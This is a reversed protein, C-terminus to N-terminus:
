AARARQEAHRRMLSRYDVKGVKTLPLADIFHVERPCSWKILHERCHAVISQEAPVGPATTGALVVYAVVREIQQPDPVAIVCADAIAPHQRLTAEVQAPLRQVGLIQYNAEPARSPFFGDADLCGRDGHAAM